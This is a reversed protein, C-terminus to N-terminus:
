WQLSGPSIPRASLVVLQEPNLFRQRGWAHSVDCVAVITNFHYELHCIRYIVFIPSVNVAYTYQILVSRIM